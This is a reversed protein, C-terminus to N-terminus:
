VSINSITPVSCRDENQQENITHPDKFEKIAFLKCNAEKTNLFNHCQSFKTICDPCHLLNM